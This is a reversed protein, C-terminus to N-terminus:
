KPKRQIVLEAYYLNEGVPSRKISLMGGFLDGEKDTFTWTSVTMSEISLTEVPTWNQAELQPNYLAVIQEASLESRLFATVSAFNSGGGGGGGQLPPDNHSTAIVVGEPTELAPILMYIGGTEGVSTACEFSNGWTYQINVRSRGDTDEVATVNMFLNDGEEQCFQQSMTLHSVFGYGPSGLVEIWNQATMAEKYFTILEQPSLDSGFFIQTYLVGDDPPTGYQSQISGTIATGDPLPLNQTEGEPLSGVYIKVEGDTMGPAAIYGLLERMADPNEEGGIIEVEGDQAFAPIASVLTLILALILFWRKM